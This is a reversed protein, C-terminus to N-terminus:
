LRLLLCRVTNRSHSQQRTPTISQKKSLANALALQKGCVRCDSKHKKDLREQACDHHFTHGCETIIEKKETNGLPEECISCEKATSLSM